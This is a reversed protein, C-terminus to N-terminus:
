MAIAGEIEHDLTLEEAVCDLRVKGGLRPPCRRVSRMVDQDPISVRPEFVEAADPARLDASGLVRKFSDAGTSM